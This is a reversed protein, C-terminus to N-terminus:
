GHTGLMQQPLWRFVVRRGGSGLSRGRHRSEAEQGSASVRDGSGLSRRGGVGGIYLSRSKESVGRGRSEAGAASVGGRGGGSVGGGGRASVAGVQISAQVDRERTQAAMLENTGSFKTARAQKLQHELIEQQRNEARLREDMRLAHEEASLHTEAAQQMRELLSEHVEKM